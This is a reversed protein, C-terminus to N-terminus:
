LNPRAGPNQRLKKLRWAGAMGLFGMGLLILSSPEPTATWTGQTDLANAVGTAIFNGPESVGTQTLDLEFSGFTGFETGLFVTPLGTFDLSGVAIDWAVIQGDSGTQLSFSSEPSTTNNLTNVGDTFSFSLPAVSTLPMNPLLPSAFTITGSISCEGVGNTCSDGGSFINFPQGTYTYIADARASPAFGFAVLSCILVIGFVSLRRKRNRTVDIM